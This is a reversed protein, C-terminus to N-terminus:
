VRLGLGLVRFGFGGLLGGVRLVTAGRSAGTASCLLGSAGSASAM